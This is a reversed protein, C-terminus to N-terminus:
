RTAGDVGCDDRRRAQRSSAAVVGFESLMRDPVMSRLEAGDGRRLNRVAADGLRACFGFTVSEAMEAAIGTYPCIRILFSIRM